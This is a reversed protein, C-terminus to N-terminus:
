NEAAIRNICYPRRASELNRPARQLQNLVIDIRTAAVEM